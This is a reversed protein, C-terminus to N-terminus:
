EKQLPPLKNIERSIFTKQKNGQTLHVEAGISVGVGTFDDLDLTKTVRKGEGSVGKGWKNWQANATFSVMLGLFLVSFFLSYKKM